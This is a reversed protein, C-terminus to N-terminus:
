HNSFNPRVLLHCFLLVSSQAAYATVLGVHLPRMTQGTMSIFSHAVMNMEKWWVNGLTPPM